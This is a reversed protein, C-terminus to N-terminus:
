ESPPIYPIQSYTVDVDRLWYNSWCYRKIKEATRERDYTPAVMIKRIPLHGECYIRMRANEKLDHTKNFENVTKELKYYVQGQDNGQPIHIVTVGSSYLEELKKTSYGDPDFVCQSYDKAQNGARVVMYPVKVGDMLTRFRVCKSLRGERNEFLLRWESEEKFVDNKFYPIIDEVKWPYYDKAECLLQGSLSSSTALLHEKDVYLVPLPANFETEYYRSAEHDSHLVSYIRPQRIDFEIAAGGNFCYGRWQSLCDIKDSFCMIFSDNMYNLDKFEKNQLLIEESSDNSFRTSSVWVADKELINFLVPLSTYHHLFGKGPTQLYFDSIIKELWKKKQGLIAKQETEIEVIAM